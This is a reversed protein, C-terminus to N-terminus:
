DSKNSNHSQLKNRVMEYVAYIALGFVALTFVVEIVHDYDPLLEGASWVILAIAAAGIGLIVLGVLLVGGLSLINLLKERGFLLVFLIAALLIAILVMM